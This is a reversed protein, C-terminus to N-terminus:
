AHKIEAVLDGQAISDGEAVSLKAVKGSVPASVVSEMQLVAFFVFDARQECSNRLATFNISVKMASLIVLPDGAKVEQGDHVRVEVVVASMPSGVSGPDSTAKERRVHEVAASRDEVQVARLEGNM